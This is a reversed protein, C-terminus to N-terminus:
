RLKCCAHGAIGENSLVMAGADGAVMCIKSLWASKMRPGRTESEALQEPLKSAKSSSDEASTRTVKSSRQGPLLASPDPYAAFPQLSYGYYGVLPHDFKCTTGYKCSGYTTYFTCLPQGKQISVWRYMLFSFAM